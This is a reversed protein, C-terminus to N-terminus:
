LNSRLSEKDRELQAKLAEESEFRVVPRLYREFYVRVEAGYLDGQFGKLYAELKKEEVGFTPRSGFNIISPYNGAPTEVCGAYVGERPPHKGQPFSVNLTPFGYRRGVQRGHEVKGSVFYGYGLLENVLGIEGASLYAKMRSVSVKEGGYKKLPLAFVPCPAYERLLAPSGAAGKGFRFDEGCYVARPSLEGFLGRLFDEATTNKMEQSFRYEAVFAFGERRFIEERESFTFVDGGAKGGAISTLGVPFGTRKAADLLTRHGAHFGDFGGLLLACGEKETGDGALTKLM